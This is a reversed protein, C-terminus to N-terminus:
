QTHQSKLRVSRAFVRIFVLVRFFADRKCRFLRGLGRLLAETRKWSWVAHAATSAATAGHRHCSLTQLELM